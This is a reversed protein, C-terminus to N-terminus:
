KYREPLDIIINIELGCNSCTTTDMSSKDVELPTGCPCVYGYLRAPNGWVLGYDPIDGTVVSGAGIMAWSGITLGCRITTNAGIAAGYQVLTKSIQWDDDSKLSGDPNIARPYIDNTFCVHPGIFVGDAITVGHYISVYNQIKVNNGVQVGSDIYVGKGIICCDGIKAGQRIQAQHWIQTNEGLTAEKSVDATPHVRTTM